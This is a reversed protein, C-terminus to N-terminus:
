PESIYDRDEDSLTGPRSTDDDHGEDPYSRHRRSRGSTSVLLGLIFGAASMVTLLILKPVHLQIFLLTFDAPEQNQMIVVTLLIVVILAFITRARM